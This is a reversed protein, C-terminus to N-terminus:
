RARLISWPSIMSRMVLRANLIRKVVDNSAVADTKIVMLTNQPMEAFWEAGTEAPILVFKNWDFGIDFGFRETHELVGTVRCRLGAISMSHGVAEGKRWLGDAVESGVVCVRSLEDHERADFARGSRISLRLVSLFNRDGAILGARISAGEDATGDRLGFTAYASHDAVHPVERLLSTRDNESMGLRYASARAEAREPVKPIVLLLRAGGVEELGRKLTEFGSEALSSMLVIAFAGISVSLLTLCARFRHAQLSRAALGLSDLLLRL